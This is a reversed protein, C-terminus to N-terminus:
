AGSRRVGRVEAGVPPPPVSHPERTLVSKTRVIDNLLENARKSFDKLLRTLYSDLLANVDNPPVDYKAIETLQATDLQDDKLYEKMERLLALMAEMRAPGGYKLLYYVKRTNEDYSVWENHLPSRPFYVRLQSAIGNSSVSWEEYARDYAPGPAGRWSLETAHMAALFAGTSEGIKRALDSKVELEKQARANTLELVKERQQWEHTIRPILYNTVGATFVGGVLLILL